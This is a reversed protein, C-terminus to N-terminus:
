GATGFLDKLFWRIAKFAGSEYGVWLIGCVFFIVFLSWINQLLGRVKVGRRTNWFKVDYIRELDYFQCQPCEPAKADFKHKCKYCPKFDTKDNM